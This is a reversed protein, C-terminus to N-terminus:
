PTEEGMPKANKMCTMIAAIKPVMEQDVGLEYALLLLDDLPGLFEGFVHNAMAAIVDSPVDRRGGQFSDEVVL